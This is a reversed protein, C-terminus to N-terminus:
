EKKEMILQENIKLIEEATVKMKEELDSLESELAIRRDLFSIAVTETLSKIVDIGLEYSDVEMTESIWFFDEFSHNRLDLLSELQIKIAGSEDIFMNALVQVEPLIMKTDQVNFIKCWM